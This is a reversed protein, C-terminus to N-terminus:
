DEERESERMAPELRCVFEQCSVPNSHFPIPPHTSHGSPCLPTKNCLAHCAHYYLCRPVHYYLLDVLFSPRYSPLTAKEKEKEELGSIGTGLGEGHGRSVGARDGPQSQHPSLTTPLWAVVLRAVIASMVHSFQVPIIPLPISDFHALSDHLLPFFFFFCPVYAPLCTLHHQLIRSLPPPCIKKKKQERWRQWDGLTKSAHPHEPFKKKVRTGELSDGLPTVLVLSSFRKVVPTIQIKDGGV